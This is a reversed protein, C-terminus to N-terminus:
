VLEKCLQGRTLSKNPEFVDGKHVWIERLPLPRCFGSLPEVMSVRDSGMKM